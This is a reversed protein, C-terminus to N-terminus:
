PRGLRPLVEPGPIPKSFFYGQARRCGMEIAARRQADTEIGEALTDVGIAEAVAVVAQVISRLIAGERPTAGDRLLQGDFKIEDVPFTALRTLSSYGSGFDDIAIRVGIERLADLQRVAERYSRAISTETLELVLSGAVIGTADITAAVDSVLTGTTFHEASINVGVALDLGVQRWEQAQRAAEHLAWRSMDVILGTEEAAPIFTAPALLGRRPHRWRMLAEVGHVVGTQLDTIPQYHLELEDDRVARGLGEVVELRDHAQVRLDSTFEHSRDRGSAKAAYMATDADRLVDEPREHDAGARAIGVSVSLPLRLGAVDFPGRLAQHVADARACADDADVVLVFEDGGLRALLEDDIVVARLKAAVDQILRDGVDHGLSDNVTKFGDLDLFLVALPRAVRDRLRAQLEEILRTRNPLGTLDDRRARAAEMDAAHIRDTVDVHIVVIHDSGEVRTAQIQTWRTAGHKTYSLDHSVSGRTGAVLARLDALLQSRGGDRGSAITGELSTFYNPQPGAVAVGSRDALAIADWALNTRRVTGDAALLVTPLPLADLVSATTRAVDERAADMRRREEVDRCFVVLGGVYPFLRVEYWTDSPSYYTEFTVEEGSRTAEDYRAEVESQHLAPFATWIDTGILGSRPRRLLLEAADNVFTFRRDHDVAMVADSTVSVALQALRAVNVQGTAGGGPRTRAPVPAANGRSM